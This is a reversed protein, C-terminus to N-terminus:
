STRREAIVSVRSTSSTTAAIWMEQTGHIVIPAAPLTASALLYAGSPAPTNTVTNAAANASARSHCIVAPNDHVIITARVRLPDLPLLQQVAQANTATSIVLTYTTIHQPVTEVTVVPDCVSVPIPDIPQVPEPDDVVETEYELLEDEDNYDSM